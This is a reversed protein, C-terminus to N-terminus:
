QYIGGWFQGIAWTPRKKGFIDPHTQKWRLSELRIEGPINLYRTPVRKIIKEIGSCQLFDQKNVWVQLFNQKDDIYRESKLRKFSPSLPIPSKEHVSGGGSFSHSDPIFCSSELLQVSGIGHGRLFDHVVNIKPVEIRVDELDQCLKWISSLFIRLPSKLHRDTEYFFEPRHSFLDM